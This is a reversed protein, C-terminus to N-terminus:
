FYCIQSSKLSWIRINDLTYFLACATAGCGIGNVAGLGAGIEVALEFGGFEIAQFRVTVQPVNEFLQELSLRECVKLM